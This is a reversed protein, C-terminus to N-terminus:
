LLERADNPDLGMKKMQKQVWRYDHRLRWMRHPNKKQLAKIITQRTRPGVQFEAAEFWGDFDEQMAKRKQRM